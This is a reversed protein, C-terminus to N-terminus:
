SDPLHWGDDMCTFLIPSKAYFAHDLCVGQIKDEGYYSIWLFKYKGLFNDKCCTCKTNSEVHCIIDHLESDDTPFEKNIIKLLHEFIKNGKLKKVQEDTGLEPVHTFIILEKFQKNESTM